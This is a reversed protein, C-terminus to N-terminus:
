RGSLLFIFVVEIRAAKTLVSEKPMWLTSALHKSLPALQGLLSTLPGLTIGTTTDFITQQSKGKCGLFGAAEDVICAVIVAAHERAVISWELQFGHTRPRAVHSDFKNHLVLVLLCAEVEAIIVARLAQVILDKPTLM